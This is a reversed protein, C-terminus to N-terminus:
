DQNRTGLKRETGFGFVLFGRGQKSKKFEERHYRYRSECCKSDAECPCYIGVVDTAGYYTNGCFSEEAVGGGVKM